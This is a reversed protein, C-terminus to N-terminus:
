HDHPYPTHGRSKCWDEYEPVEESVCWLFYYSGTEGMFKFQKRLDKVTADFGGHSRLYNRFGNHSEELDIM